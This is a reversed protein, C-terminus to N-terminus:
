LHHSRRAPSASFRPVRVGINETTGKNGCRSYSIHLSQKWNQRRALLATTTTRGWIRAHMPIPLSLAPSSLSLSLSSGSLSRPIVCPHTIAISYFPGPAFGRHRAQAARIGATEPDVLLPSPVGFSRARAPFAPHDCKSPSARPQHTHNTKRLHNKKKPSTTESCRTKPLSRKSSPVIVASKAAQLSTIPSSNQVNLLRLHITLITTLVDLWHTQNWELAQTLHASAPDIAM